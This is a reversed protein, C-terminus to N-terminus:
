GRAPQANLRAAAGGGRATGISDGDEEAEPAPLRGPVGALQARAGALLHRLDSGLIVFRFGAALAWRCEDADEAHVGAAIGHRRAARAVRRCAEGLEPDEDLRASAPAGRLAALLDRPGVVVADLGPVAAIEDVAQVAAPSEVQVAVFVLADARARYDAADTGFALPALEGGVGRRGRPPYKAAAVMAEAADRTEVRPVVVGHAGCDLARMVDDERPAATRCLPAVGTGSLVAFTTAAATWDLPYHEMDALLFDWPLQALVRATLPGPLALRSGVAAGGGALRARVRNEVTV